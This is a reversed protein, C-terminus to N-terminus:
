GEGFEVRSSGAASSADIRREAYRVRLRRNVPDGFFRAVVWAFVASLAFFLLLMPLKYEPTMATRPVLEGM